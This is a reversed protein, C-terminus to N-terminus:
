VAVNVVCRGCVTYVGRGCLCFVLQLVGVCEGFDDTLGLEAALSKIKNVYEIKSAKNITPM